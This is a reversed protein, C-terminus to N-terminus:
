SFTEKKQVLRTTNLASGTKKQKSEQGLQIVSLYMHRTAIRVLKTPINRFVADRRVFVCFSHRQKIFDGNLSDIRQGSFYSNVNRALGAVIIAAM